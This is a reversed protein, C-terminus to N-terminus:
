DILYQFARHTRLGLKWHAVYQLQLEIFQLQEIKHCLEGAHKQGQLLKCVIHKQMRGEKNVM